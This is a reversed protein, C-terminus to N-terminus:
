CRANPWPQGGRQQYLLAARYDQEAPSAAAPDGTGGVSEWTSQDFQYAGRYIYYSAQYNGNSEHERICALVTELEPPIPPTSGDAADADVSPQEPAPAPQPAAPADQAVPAAPTAIAVLADFVPALWTGDLSPLPEPPAGQNTGGEATAQDAEGLAEAGLAEAGADLSAVGAVPNSYRILLPEFETVPPTARSSRALGVGLSTEGGGSATSSCSVLLAAALVMGTTRIRDRM